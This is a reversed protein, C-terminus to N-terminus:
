DIRNTGRNSIPTPDTDPLPTLRTSNTSVNFDLQNTTLQQNQKIRRILGTPTEQTQGAHLASAKGKFKEAGLPVTETVIQEGEERQRGERVPGEM